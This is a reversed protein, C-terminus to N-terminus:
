QKKCSLPDPFLRVLVVGHAPVLTTFKENSKGIDKQRWLDRIRWNKRISLSQWVVTMELDFFSRNFLGVVKSGDEMKKMWVEQDENREILSAQAGLPDQNVEIVETNTILSLTFDDIRVLDCGLLLPSALMSWLSIHTYQENPTLKTPHTEGHWGVRGIVLMDADNWHGPGAYKGWKDQNFGIVSMAGWTDNIDDTTRWSNALRGYEDGLEPTAENSLSYVIDRTQANLAKSMRETAPVDNPTWDYKLYDFGWGAYQHADIEEFHYKGIVKSPEGKGTKNLYERNPTDASAGKRGDYGHTWPTSYIGAKLGLGHIYNCLGPMDPFKSDPKIELSAPDVTEDAWGCDINVYTWGYNILGKSIFAEAIERIKQDSIHSCGWLNYSNWGMPPTLALRDGCVIRLNKKDTGSKNRAMLSVNYTGKESISGTIQGNKQNLSLGDPLNTTSFEMPRDGTAPITFMFPSHPRVGFIRAGNIRPKANAPPTLIVPNEIFAKVKSADGSVTFEADAWYVPLQDWNHEEAVYLVIRRIGSLNADLTKNGSSGKMLGSTWILQGDGFLQFEVDGRDGVEDGIGVVAHFLSVNGQLDVDFISEAVTGLGHGFRDGGIHLSDGSEPLIRRPNGSRQRVKSIDLDELRITKQAFVTGFLLLLILIGILYRM